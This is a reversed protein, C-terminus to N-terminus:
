KPWADKPMWDKHELAEAVGEDRAYLVQRELQDLYGQMSCASDWECWIGFPTEDSYLGLATQIEEIQTWINRASDIRVTLQTLQAKLEHLMNLRVQQGAWKGIDAALKNTDM